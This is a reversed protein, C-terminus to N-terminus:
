AKAAPITPIPIDKDTQIGLFIYVKDRLVKIIGNDINLEKKQGSKDQILLSKSIISIFNAHLPLIDFKGKNNLSSISDAKGEYVVKEPSIVLVDLESNNVTKEAYRNTNSM